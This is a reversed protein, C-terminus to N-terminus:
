KLSKTAYNSFKNAWLIWMIFVLGYLIFPLVIQHLVNKYDPFEYFLISLLAIRLVNCCHILLCGVVLFVFTRKYNGTFAIIFSIFLINISLANCGEVVHSVNKNKYFIKINPENLSLTAYSKKDLLSLIFVSQKAVLTTYGDVEFKKVDYFNLYLQYIITLVVYSALFIGLFKLFPRYLIFYNKLILNKLM